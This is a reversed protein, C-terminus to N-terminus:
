STCGRKLGSPRCIAKALSREPMSFRQTHSRSPRLARASVCSFSRVTLAGAQDGSPSYTSPRLRM